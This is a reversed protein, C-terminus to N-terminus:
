EQLLLQIWAATNTVSLILGRVGRWSTLLLQHHGKKLPRSVLGM